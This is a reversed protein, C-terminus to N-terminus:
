IKEGKSRIKPLFFVAVIGAAVCALEAVALLHISRVAADAGSAGGAMLRTIRNTFLPV